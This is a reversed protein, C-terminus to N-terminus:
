AGADAVGAFAKPGYQRRPNTVLWQQVVPCNIQRATLAFFKKCLQTEDAEQGAPVDEFLDVGKQMLLRFDSVYNEPLGSGDNWYHRFVPSACLGFMWIVWSGFVDEAMIGQVRFRYAMEFLNLMQCVYQKVRYEQTKAAPTTPEPPPDSYWLAEVLDAHDCEFRFLSVSQLELTQYIQQNATKNSQESKMVYTFVIGTATVVIGAVQVLVDTGITAKTDFTVHERALWLFTLTVLTFAGLAAWVMMTYQIRNDDPRIHNRLLAFYYVVAIAAGIGLAIAAEVVHMLHALWYPIALAVIVIVVFVAVQGWLVGHNEDLVEGRLPKGIAIIYTLVFMLLLSLVALLILAAEAVLAIDPRVLQFM